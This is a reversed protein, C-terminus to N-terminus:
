AFLASDMLQRTSHKESFGGGELAVYVGSPRAVSSHLDVTVPKRLFLQSLRPAPAAVRASPALPICARVNRLLRSPYVGAISIGM